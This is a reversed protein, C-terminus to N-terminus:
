AVMLPGDRYTWRPLYGLMARARSIDVTHEDALQAVV